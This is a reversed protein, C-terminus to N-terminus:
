LQKLRELHQHDEATLEAAPFEAYTRLALSPQQEHICAQVLRRRAAQDGPFRRLFDQWLIVISGRSPAAGAALTAAFHLARNRPEARLRESLVSQALPNQQALQLATLQMEARDLAQNMSEKVAKKMAENSALACLRSLAHPVRAAALRRYSAFAVPGPQEDDSIAAHWTLWRLYDANVPGQHGLKELSLRHEPFTELHRELVPLMRSGQHAKRAALCARDLTREPYPAYGTLQSLQLSLAEPTRGVEIMLSLELDRADELAPHEKDGQHRNIWLSLARLAPATNQSRRCATALQQLTEWTAGPLENARGLITVADTSNGQLTALGALYELALRRAEDGLRDGGAAIMLHVELLDVPQDHVLWADLLFEGWQPGLAAIPSEQVTLQRVQHIAPLAVWESLTMLQEDPLTVLGMLAPMAQNKPLKALYQAINNQCELRRDALANVEESPMMRRGWLLALIAYLFVLLLVSPLHKKM